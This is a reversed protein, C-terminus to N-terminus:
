KGENEKLKYVGRKPSTIEGANLLRQLYTYITRKDRGTAEAIERPTAEGFGKLFEIIERKIESDMIEERGGIVKFCSIVDDWELALEVPKSIDRGDVYLIAKQEGRKRKVYMLTDASGTLGTSGSFDLAWDEESETKRRHHIALISIKMEHALRRLPELREYDQYYLNVNRKKDELICALTDIIVLGINDQKKIFEEIEKIAREGKYWSTEYFFWDSLKEPEVKQDLMRKQLRKETDELALYLVGIKKAELTGLAKGGTAVAIAINLAIWSKGIKPLGVLLTFGEPLIPRIIFSLEQFERELLENVSKPSPKNNKQIFNELKEMEKQMFSYVEKAPAETSSMLATRRKIAADKVMVAYDRWHQTYPEDKGLLDYLEVLNTIIGRKRLEDAVTYDNLAIGEKYLDRVVAYIEGLWAFDTPELFSFVEEIGECKEKAFGDKLVLANLIARESEPSEWGKIFIEPEDNNSKQISSQKLNKYLKSQLNRNFSNTSEGELVPSSPSNKEIKM